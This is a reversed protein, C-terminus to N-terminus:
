KLISSTSIEVEKNPISGEFPKTVMQSFRLEREAIKQWNSGPYSTIVREYTNAAESKQNNHQYCRALSLYIIPRFFHESFRNLFQQYVGIAQVFNEQAEFSAGLGAYALPILNKQKHKILYNQYIESAERYKKLQYLTEAKYFMAYNAVPSRQYVQLIEDYLNLAENYFNRHYHAQAFSLREWARENTKKLHHIIYGSLSSGLILIGLLSLSTERHVKIWLIVKSIFDALQDKKLEKRASSKVM